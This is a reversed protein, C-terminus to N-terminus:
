GVRREESRVEIEGANPRDICGILNLLTTKGSGSPGAIATVCNSRIELDIGRLAQVDVTEVRYTRTVNRLIAAQMGPHGHIDPRVTRREYWLRAIKHRFTAPASSAGDQM